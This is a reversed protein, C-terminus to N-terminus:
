QLREAIVNYSKDNLTNMMIGRPTFDDAGSLISKLVSPSAGGVLAVDKTDSSVPFTEMSARVNWFVLRPMKYGALEYKEIIRDYATLQVYKSDFQLDTIVLLMTPMENEPVSNDIAKGLVLDFVADLDTNLEWHARRLQAFRDTVTGQLYQMEPKTSFTVFADKFISTNRESIYVGLSVSMEMPIGDGYHQMSGSVDCIPLIRENSNEMYNPLSEWQLDISNRDAGRKFSRYIDYPFIAKANIVKEGTTELKKKADEIFSIFRLEDNRMWAKRYKNFAASPIKSYDIDKWKNACMRQEVTNSVEVVMHRYQKPTIKLHKRLNSLFNGYKLKGSKTKNKRPLWKALLGNNLNRAILEYVKKDQIHFLSDWRNFEPVLDFLKYFITKDKNYLWEIATRIFDREGKGNRIDGGHFINKLTIIKDMGWSKELLIHIDEIPLDRIGGLQFFLDLNYDLTTSHSVDNNETKTNNQRTANVLASNSKM